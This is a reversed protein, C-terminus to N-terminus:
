GTLIKPPPPVPLGKARAKAVKQDYVFQAVKKAEVQQAFKLLILTTLIQLDDGQFGAQQLRAVVDDQTMIGENFANEIETLTLSKHPVKTKTIMTAQIVAREDETVPLTKIIALADDATMHGADVNSELTDILRTIRGDIRKLEPIRGVTDVLEEPWGLDLIYQRTKVEDWYGWRKLTEVEDVTLRKQHLKILQEIKDASYGELNLERAVTGADMVTSAYPNVLEGAKFHTPHFRANLYRQYPDIITTKLLPGFVRRHLRSLGLGSSVQEGILRFDKMIGVTALEGTLGLLATATGFNVIMGTFAEAGRAGAKEDDGAAGVFQSILQQHILAGVEDARELHGALGTGTAISAPSFDTGLLENIVSISVQAVQPDLEKRFTDIYGLGVQLLEVGMVKIGWLVLGVLIGAFLVFAHPFASVFDALWFPVGADMMRKRITLAVNKALQWPMPFLDQLVEEPPPVRTFLSSLFSVAAVAPAFDGLTDVVTQTDQPTPIPDTPLLPNSSM